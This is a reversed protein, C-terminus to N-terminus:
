HSGYGDYCEDCYGREHAKKYADLSPFIHTMQPHNRCYSIHNNECVESPIDGHSKCFDRDCLLCMCCPGVTELGSHKKPNNRRMSECVHCEISDMITSSMKLSRSTISLLTSRQFLIISRTKSELSNGLILFPQVEMQIMLVSYLTNATM